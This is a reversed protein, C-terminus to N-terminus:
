WHRLMGTTVVGNGNMECSANSAQNDNFCLFIVLNKCCFLRYIGNVGLIGQSHNLFSCELVVVELVFQM